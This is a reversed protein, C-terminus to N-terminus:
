LSMQYPIGSRNCLETISPIIMFNMGEIILNSIIPNSPKTVTETM